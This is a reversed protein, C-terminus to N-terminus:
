SMFPAAVMNMEPWCRAGTRTSAKTSHCCPLTFTSSAAMGIASSNPSLLRMYGALAIVEVAKARLQEDLLRDFEARDM